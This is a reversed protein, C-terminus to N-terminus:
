NQNHLAAYIMGKLMDGNQYRIDTIKWNKDADQELLYRINQAKGFNKFNVEVTTFETGIEPKGIKFETIKKDQANYLPDFSIAGVEGKSEIADQWILDAFDKSFFRDVAARDKTQFFPNANNKEAEYLNKVLTEPTNAATQGDEKDAASLSKVSEVKIIKGSFSLDAELKPVKCVGDGDVEGTFQCKEGNKCAALIKRGVESNNTFCYAAYDGTEEGVYLIVSETKGTQLTGSFGESEDEAPMDRFWADSGQPNKGAKADALTNYFTITMANSDKQGDVAMSVTFFKTFYSNKTPSTIEILYSDGGKPAASRYKLREAKNGKSEFTITTEDLFMQFARANSWSGVYENAAAQAFCVSGLAFILATIFLNKIKM